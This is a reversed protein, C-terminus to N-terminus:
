GRGVVLKVLMGPAAAVHSKPAQYLVQMRPGNM